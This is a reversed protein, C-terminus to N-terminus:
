IADHNGDCRGSDAKQEYNSEIAEHVRFPQGEVICGSQQQSPHELMRREACASEAVKHEIADDAHAAVLLQLIARLRQELKRQTV